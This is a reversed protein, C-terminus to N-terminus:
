ITWAISAAAKDTCTINNENLSLKQLNELWRTIMIVGEALLRNNGIDVVKLSPNQNVVEAIDYAAEEQIDNKSICFVKLKRHHKLAQCITCIGESKLVNNYLLLKEIKLNNAIVSTIDDAAEEDIHNGNLALLKLHYTNKFAKAVAKFGSSRLKNNRLNVVELSLNNAIVEKLQGVAEKTTVQGDCFRFHKLNRINSLAQFIKGCASSPLNDFKLSAKELTPNSGIFTSLANALSNAKLPPVKNCSLLLSTMTSKMLLAEVLQKIWIDNTNCEYLSFEELDTHHSLVDVLSNYHENDFSCSIFRLITSSPPVLSLCRGLQKISAQSGIVVKNEIIIFSCNFIHLLYRAVMTGLLQKQLECIFISKLMKVQKFSKIMRCVKNLSLGNNCLMVDTVMNQKSIYDLIINSNQPENELFCNRVYFHDVNSSLPSLKQDFHLKLINFNCKNAIFIHDTSIISSVNVDTDFKNVLYSLMEGSIVNECICFFISKEFFDTLNYLPEGSWKVHTLHLSNVTDHNDLSRLLIESQVTCNNAIIQTFNDSVDIEAAIANHNLMQCFLINGSDCTLTLSLQKGHAFLEEAVKVSVSASNSDDIAFSNECIDIASPNLCQILKVITQLSLSTLINSALKITDVTRNDDLVNSFRRLTNDDVKSGSLDLLSWQQSSNNLIGAIKSMVDDTIQCDNLQLYVISPNYELAALIQHDGAGRALLKNASVLLVQFNSSVTTNMEDISIDSLSKEFLFLNKLHKASKLVEFLKLLDNCLPNKDYLYLLSLTEHTKLVTVLSDLVEVDLSCRIIYLNTLTSLSQLDHMDIKIFLFMAKVNEIVKPSCGNIPAETYLVLNKCIEEDKIKENHSLIVKSANMIHAIRFIGTVSKVTSQNNSLDLTDVKPMYKVKCVFLELMTDLKDDDLCCNSLSFCEWQRVIYYLLFSTLINLSENTLNGCNSIDLVNENKLVVQKARQYIGEDPLERLCYVLYLCSIKDKLVKSSLRETQMFWSSALVFSKFEEPVGKRLGAWVNIYKHHWKTKAWLNKLNKGSQAVFFAALFEQIMPLHFSFRKCELVKFFEFGTQYGQTEVLAHDDFHTSGFIVTEEEIAHFALGCIKHFAIQYKEPLNQLLISVTIGLELVQPRKFGM